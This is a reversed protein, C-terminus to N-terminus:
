AQGGLYHLPGDWHIGGGGHLPTEAAPAVGALRFVHLFTVWDHQANWILIPICCLAALGTMSGFGPSFLLKRYSPTTLLFLVLSPIFLIMTYKALIGLGVMVGTAEWAWDNKGTIARHAFVLAWGWCCTYPSDITMLSSGATILPMSLA